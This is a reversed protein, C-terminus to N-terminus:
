NRSVCQGVFHAHRPWTAHGFDVDVRVLTTESYSCEPSPESSWCPAASTACSPVVRGALSGFHTVTTSCDAQIGRNLPDLDAPVDECAIGGGRVEGPVLKMVAAPEDSDLSLLVSHDLFAAAFADLRPTPAVRLVSVVVSSPDSKLHRLKSAYEDPAQASSDDRAAVIVVLLRADQRLFDSAPDHLARDTVLLLEPLAVSTGTVRALGGFASALTGRYNVLHQYDEHVEDVIFSGAIDPSTLFRANNTTVVAIHLDPRGTWPSDFAGMMAPYSAVLRERFPLLERVDDIVFLMDVATPTALPVDWSRVHSEVDIEPTGPEPQVGACGAAMAALAGAILEPQRV